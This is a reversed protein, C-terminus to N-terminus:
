REKIADCIYLWILVDAFLSLCFGFCGFSPDVLLYVVSIM